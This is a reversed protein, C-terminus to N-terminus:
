YYYCTYSNSAYIVMYSEVTLYKASSVSISRYSRCISWQCGKLDEDQRVSVCILVSYLVLILTEENVLDYM